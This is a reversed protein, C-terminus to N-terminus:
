VATCVEELAWPMLALSGDSMRHQTDHGALWSVCRERREGTFELGEIRFEQLRSLVRVGSRGLVQLGVGRIGIGACFMDSHHGGRGQM